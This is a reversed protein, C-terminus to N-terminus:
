PFNRGIHIAHSSPVWSLNGQLASKIILDACHTSNSKHTCNICVGTILKFHHSSLQAIVLVPCIASREWPVSIHSYLFVAASSPSPHPPTLLLFFPPTKHQRGRLGFNSTVTRSALRDVLWTLLIVGQAFIIPRAHCIHVPTFPGPQWAGRCKWWIHKFANGM